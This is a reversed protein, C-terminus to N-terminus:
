KAAGEQCLNLALAEQAVLSILYRSRKLILLTPCSISFVRGQGTLQQDPGSINKLSPSFSFEDGINGIEFKNVFRGLLDFYKGKDATNGIIKIACDEKDINLQKLVNLLYFVFDNENKHVYSNCILLKNERVIVIDFFGTNFNIYALSGEIAEELEKLGILSTWQHFVGVKEYKSRFINLLEHHVSFVNYVKHFPNFNYHLEDLEGLPCNLEFYKKVRTKDFVQKPILIAKQNVMNLSVSGFQHKLLEDNNLIRSVKNLYNDFHMNGKFQYHRTGVYRGIYTELLCFSFGDLTPQISLHYNETKNLDINRDLETFDHM